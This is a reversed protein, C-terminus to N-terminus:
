FKYVRRSISLPKDEYIESLFLLASGGKWLVVMIRTPKQRMLVSNKKQIMKRQNLRAEIQLSFAKQQEFVSEDGTTKMYAHLAHLLLVSSGDGSACGKETRIEGQATDRTHLRGPVLWTWLLTVHHLSQCTHEGRKTSCSAYTNLLAYSFRSKLIFKSRVIHSLIYKGHMNQNLQCNRYQVLNRWTHKRELNKGLNQLPCITAKAM